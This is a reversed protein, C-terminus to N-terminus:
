ASTSRGYISTRLALSDRIGIGPDLAEAPADRRELGSASRWGALRGSIAALDRSILADGTAVAAETALARLAQRSHLVGYRRLLYGRAFGAHRRQWASRHGHTAPFLPVVV